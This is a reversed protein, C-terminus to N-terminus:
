ILNLSVLQSIHIFTRLLRISEIIKTYGLSKRLVYVCATFTLSTAYLELKGEAGLSLVNSSEIFFKERQDLVDIIVNTDLFVKKM